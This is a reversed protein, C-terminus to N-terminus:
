KGSCNLLVEVKQWAAVFDQAEDSASEAGLSEWWSDIDRDSGQVHIRKYPGDIAAPKGEDVMLPLGRTAQTALEIVKAAEDRTLKCRTKASHYNKSSWDYREEIIKGNAELRLSWTKWAPGAIQHELEITPQRRQAPPMALVLLLLAGAFRM